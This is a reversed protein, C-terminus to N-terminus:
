PQAPTEPLKAARVVQGIRAEALSVHYAALLAGTTRDLALRANTYATLAAVEASQANALDRQQQIVNYPISAGLAFRKQESTLLQEQLIRSRVAAEHRARAQRLAIVDNLVDVEAQKADKQTSLQTQRFSLQDVAYDALAQRNRLPAAYYGTISETPYSFSFVQQLANGIGGVLAPNPAITIGDISATHAAGSLGASSGGAFVGLTPLVGNRTGLNSVEGARENERDTILDTRNSLAQKVLDELPPLDDHDPITMHDVPEIHTSTLVPDATGPRSLLNRLRVEQQQRDADSDVLAQDSTVLQSEANIIDSPALSGLRVQEKVNALFTRAVEAANRKAKSDEDAAELNYYANLVQAVVNIVQSQFTFDSIGANMKAVTIFRANVAIGFGQLFGQQFSFSLSPGSSPNLVDAPSNENLYNDAYSVTASGGTLLGQTYSLSHARTVDILTATGSVTEVPELNTTHSFTSAEQIIPDLTQTVPGIQQITTSSTQSAKASSGPLSIGAAALSGAVGQGLAAAGVQASNSPVGPLAGGAEARTVNWNAILPNYRAVEIDINNELALAIADQVTLYLTGGRVLQGLRASNALRIPPVDVAFYPRLITPVSPKTAAVATYPQQQAQTISLPCALSLSFALIKRKIV